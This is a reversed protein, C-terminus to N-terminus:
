NKPISKKGPYYRKSWFNFSDYMPCNPNSKGHAVFANRDMCFLNCPDCYKILDLEQYKTCEKICHNLYIKLLSNDNNIIFQEKCGKCIASILSYSIGNVTGAPNKIPSSNSDTADKAGKKDGNSKSGKKSSGSSNRSKSTSWEILDGKKVDPVYGHYLSDCDSFNKLPENMDRRLSFVPSPSRKRRRKGTKVDTGSTSPADIIMVDSSSSGHSLRQDGSSSQKCEVIMPEDSDDVKLHGCKEEQIEKHERSKRSKKEPRPNAHGSIRGGSSENEIKSNRKRENELKNSARIKIEANDAALRRDRKLGSM